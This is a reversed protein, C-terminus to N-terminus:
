LLLIYEITQWLDAAETHVVELTESQSQNATLFLLGILQFQVCEVFRFALLIIGLFLMELYQFAQVSNLTHKNTEAKFM